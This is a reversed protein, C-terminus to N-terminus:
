WIGQDGIRKSLQNATVLLVLGILSQFLGVATAVSFQASLIGVRYVFTSIVDGVDRVLVNGLAYPREFGIDMFKGLQLILIISITPRIGPLTIHWIRRLRGCGDVTAAEYLDPNIGAIAALFIIASWGMSQWIGSGIYIGVWWGSTTLFAVPEGGTISTLLHNIVGSQTAFLQYAMGGIIMWSMFHPLYLLTQSVKKFWPVRLESLMIAIIIPAPFGLLLGLMNLMLTNRVARVFDPMQFIQRFVELGIWESGGIGKFINYEKFAITVGYMPVYKFVLYFAVPVILLMYLYRDRSVAVVLRKRRARRDAKGGSMM